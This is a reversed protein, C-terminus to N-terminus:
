SAPYHIKITLVNLGLTHNYEVDDTISYVIRIGVDKLDDGQILEKRQTPDFAKCDDKIRLILMDDKLAARVEISHPKNDATFGFKIVNVAMERMCRAASSAESIGVGRSM